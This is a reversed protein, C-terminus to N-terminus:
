IIVRHKMLNLMPLDHPLNGYGWSEEFPGHKSLYQAVLEAKRDRVCNGSVMEGTIVGDLIGIETCILGHHPLDKLLEPLYLHLGGSAIVIHHGAAAHDLLAQRVPEKWTTWETLKVAADQLQSEARGALLRSLLHAKLFTRIDTEPWGAKDKFRRAGLRALGEGFAGITKPWGAAYGLYPWFSDSEVLTHDFDFVAITKASPSFKANM